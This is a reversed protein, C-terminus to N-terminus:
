LVHYNMAKLRREMDILLELWALNYYIPHDCDVQAELKDWIQEIASSMNKNFEIGLTERFRTGDVRYSRVPGIEQKQLDLQVGKLRELTRRVEYAIQVVQYNDNLVNFIKGHVKEAPVELVALYARVADDISLLPRWMRGNNHLVLRRNKFADKTFANVVLDYRMRPSQGFVTGKRLIVPAFNEDMLELLGCEAMYKSRSYPATPDVPFAEDRLDDDPTLSYYISCSSAFVYRRIGVSKCLRALHLAAETNMTRNADPNYEATPDNSLGAMNVVVDIGELSKETIERLDGVELEIEDRVAALGEEGFFLKDFVKVEYGAELLAPVLKCGIYGAGGAVLVKKAM